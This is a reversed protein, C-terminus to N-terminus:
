KLQGLLESAQQWAAKLIELNTEKQSSSSELAAAIEALRLLSMNSAAGKIAHAAKTLAANDNSAQAQEAQNIYQPITTMASQVLIQLLNTDGELREMLEAQDFENVESFNASM